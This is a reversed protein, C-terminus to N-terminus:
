FNNNYEPKDVSDTSLNWLEQAQRMGDGVTAVTATAPKKQMTQCSRDIRKKRRLKEIAAKLKQAFAILHFTPTKDDFSIRITCPPLRNNPDIAAIVNSHEAGLCSCGASFGYERLEELLDQLLIGDISISVIHSPASNIHLGGMISMEEVFTHYNHIVASLDWAYVKVASAFAAILATPKTSPSIADGSGFLIPQLTASDRVYLAGIGKPAGIKYGSVTMFDVNSTDIHYKCFAQSADTHFLVGREHAIKGIESINQMVGIESNLTQISILKTDNQIADRLQNIDIFGKSDVNLYTVKHGIKELHKFCELVSKHEITSTILHCKPHKYAVGMIAANNAFTASSVFHIQSPSVGIKKAIVNASENEITKLKKSYFSIGSSNGELQSVENFAELSDMLVPASSAHDFYTGYIQSCTICFFCVYLKIM